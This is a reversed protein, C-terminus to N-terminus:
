CKLLVWRGFYYHIVGGSVDTMTFPLLVETLIEKGFYAIQGFAKNAALDGNLLSNGTGIFLHSGKITRPGQPMTLIQNDLTYSELQQACYNYSVAYEWPHFQQFVLPDGVQIRHCQLTKHRQYSRWHLNDTAHIFMRMWIFEVKTLLISAHSNFDNALRASQTVISVIFAYYINYAPESIANHVSILVVCHCRHYHPICCIERELSTKTLPTIIPRCYM